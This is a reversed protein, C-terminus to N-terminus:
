LTLVPLNSKTLQENLSRVDKQKIDSWRALVGTLIRQLEESAAVAQTTPAVDAGEAVGMLGVLEGSLRSLSPEAGGQGGGGAGRFGGGAGELAASKGELANIADALAGQSARGRLDRLQVRLKRVQELADHIQQLGEYCRKAIAHQQALGNEPTKVRPDMKVALPQTYSRGGVTLRVTYNGPLIWPGRPERWTDGYIASIPYQPPLWDLPAYHLDWVFRQMGAAVSLVQAPRIWYSPINVQKGIAEISQPKDDSSFRRITKGTQDVIELVVPGSAASKLYYNIIAGDPPNKGAPEDPPIPTDTNMNWRVRYALGPKFLFADAATVQESIQRLPTIDDLIWFSRGHTGVVLDDDKIVLDRISSAPMNLRLPQWNDGDNFSVYVARESGCFLLGRRQPDERVVNVPGSDGLGNVIEKWTKGGDHTRYIHPRQDDLRIRNVAAYATNVDFHGADMISIKSWSTIGSPTVNTWNKGGDRTAHILGDDTGAWIVNVDKYSPAVTYIVGRRPQKAMEPTRYVGISEPVEPQERSLDPSIIEWRNGGSTTKFLVNGAFYLVRPDVPSFIVPATRLFRYKGGGRIPDPAVNQVQGTSWDFRTIKGGYIINPNLPDPAVYGYEEVGVPHWERFTVQGDNGRSAIGVSGSEQQGGYVWYPFRNDTIVHYFQATPQNYWSSWSGGGNVTVIAGQDSAILIIQPNDPNIWVTHYDDGGPAGRFATWNQGGDTSRWTVVNVDYVIDRNKPDVKVEAFDSGRGWLRNDGNLRRWSEGADDSRYIGGLQPSADVTAYMRKSDSPAICFGIRGLGQEFTPFGKTLKRWTNGGDTSKFLGSEPGQWAGNEWPGQRGAWLDAYVTQSNSPDFALAIAGTNEDKYLVKQFSEGGDMSRFVGRETNPGYPHGLVAVFLRNPNRPDVIIAGIQQGDRLGLHKWTKGTDTSKYIGDGTSLDPRQLGEGSGVYIINPNSPAVALAGISGTPQDDFIPTWTRGYDDTKWVGGNNVGIYFVNPQGPVGTASVTRGGRHPGICRWRVDQYLNPNFQQAVIGLSLVFMLTAAGLLRTSVIRGM